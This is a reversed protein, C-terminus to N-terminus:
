KNMIQKIGRGAERSGMHAAPSLLTGVAGDGERDWWGVGADQGKGQGTVVTPVAPGHEEKSCSSFCQKLRPFSCLLEHATSSIWNLLASAASGRRARTASSLHLCSAGCLWPARAVSGAVARPEEFWSCPQLPYFENADKFHLFLHHSFFSFLLFATEESKSCDSPSSTRSLCGSGPPSREAARQPLQLARSEADVDLSPM